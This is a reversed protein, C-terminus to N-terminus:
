VTLSHSRSRDLKRDARKRPPTWTTPLRRPAHRAYTDALDRIAGLLNLYAARQTRGQGYAGPFSPTEAAWWPGSRVTVIRVLPLMTKATPRARKRGTLAGKGVGSKRNRVAAMHEAYRTDLLDVPIWYLPGPM